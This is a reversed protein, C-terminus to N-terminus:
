SASPSSEMFDPVISKSSHYRSDWPRLVRPAILVRPGEHGLDLRGELAFSERVSIRSPARNLAGVLELDALREGLLAVIPVREEQQEVAHERDLDVTLRDGLDPRARDEAFASEDLATLRVAVSRATVGPFATM